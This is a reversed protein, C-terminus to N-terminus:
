EYFLKVFGDEKIANLWEGHENLIIPVYRPFDEDWEKYVEFWLIPKSTTGSDSYSFLAFVQKNPVVVQKFEEKMIVEEM